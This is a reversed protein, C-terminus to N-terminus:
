FLKVAIEQFVFSFNAGIELVAKGLIGKASLSGPGLVQGLVLDVPKYLLKDGKNVARGINLRKM